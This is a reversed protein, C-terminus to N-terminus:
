IRLLAEDTQRLRRLVELGSLGPLMIDLLIVDWRGSLAKDLGDRGTLAYEVTYREYSLEMELLRAIKDEDEIILIHGKM